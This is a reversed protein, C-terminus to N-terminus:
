NWWVSLKDHNQCFRRVQLLNDFPIYDLNDYDKEQITQVGFYEGPDIFVVTDCFSEFYMATAMYNILRNWRFQAKAEYDSLVQSLQKQLTERSPPATVSAYNNSYLQQIFATLEGYALFANNVGVGLRFHASAVSDGKLINVAFPSSPNDLAITTTLNDAKQLVVRLLVMDFQKQLQKDGTFTDTNVIAKRFAGITEYKNALVTNVITLIKEWDFAEEEWNSVAKEQSAGSNVYSSDRSADAFAASRIEKAETNLILDRLKNDGNNANQQDNTDTANLNVHNHGSEELLKSLAKRRATMYKEIAKQGYENDFLIQMHCHGAYFRKFVSCVNPLLLSPKWPDIFDGTDEDIATDPCDRDGVRKFNIILAVQELKPKVTIKPIAPKPLGRAYVTNSVDFSHIDHTSINLSSRVTSYLGDSGILIEFPIKELECVKGNKTTFSDTDINSCLDLQESVSMFDLTSSCDKNNTKLFNVVAYEANPEIKFDSWRSTWSKSSKGNSGPKTKCQNIYQYGFIHQVNDLLFTVKTLFRQTMQCRITYTTREKGDTDAVTNLKAELNPFENPFGLEELLEVSQSFPKPYLDFWVDRSFDTRKEIVYVKPLILSAEITSLLGVPGSGIVIYKLARNPAPENNPGKVLGMRRMNIRQTKYIRAIQILFNKLKEIEAKVHSTVTVQQEEEEEFEVPEMRTVYQALFTESLTSVQEQTKNMLLDMRDLEQQSLKFLKLIPSRENDSAIGDEVSNGPTLVYGIINQALAKFKGNFKESDTLPHFLDTRHMHNLFQLFNIMSTQINKDPTGVTVTGPPQPLGINYLLNLDLIKKNVILDQVSFSLKVEQVHYQQNPDMMVNPMQDMMPNAGSGPIAQARVVNFEHIRHHDLEDHNLDSPFRFLSLFILLTAIILLSSLFSPWKSILRKHHKSSSHASGEVYRCCHHLQESNM